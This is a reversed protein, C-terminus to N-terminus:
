HWPAHPQTYLFYTYLFYREGSVERASQGQRLPRGQCQSFRRKQCCILSFWPSFQGPLFLCHNQIRPSGGGPGQGDCDINIASMSLVPPYGQSTKQHFGTLATQVSFVEHCRNNLSPFKEEDFKHPQISFWVSVAERIGTAFHNMKMSDSFRNKDGKNQWSRM